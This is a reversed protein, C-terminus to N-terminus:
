PQVLLYDEADRGRFFQPDQNAGRKKALESVRRALYSAMDKTSISESKEGDLAELFAFTFLGHGVSEDELSLQDFRTATYAIINAHYAANGLRPNYSNGSHCTDVVLIRRGKALELAEQLAFWTV